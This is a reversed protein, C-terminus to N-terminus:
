GALAAELTDYIKLARDLRARTLSLKVIEQLRALRLQGGVRHLTQHLTAFQGMALSSMFTLNALDLVLVKPRSASWELVKRELPQLNVVSAEGSLEVLVVGEHTPSEIPHIKLDSM